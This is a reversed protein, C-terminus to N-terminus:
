QDHRQSRRRHHHHHLYLFLCPLPNTLYLPHVHYTRHQTRFHAFFFMGLCTTDTQCEYISTMLTTSGYFLPPAPWVLLGSFCPFESCVRIEPSVYGRGCLVDHHHPKEIDVMKQEEALLLHEYKQPPPSSNSATEEKPLQLAESSSVVVNM